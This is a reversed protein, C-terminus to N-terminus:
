GGYSRELNDIMEAVAEGFEEVIRARNEDMAPRIFPRAPMFRTGFEVWRAYELNTGWYVTVYGPLKRPPPLTPAAGPILDAPERIPEWDPTLETHGGVHISRRLTGTFYPANRKADNVPILVAALLGKELMDGKAAKSMANLKRVIKEDGSMTLHM